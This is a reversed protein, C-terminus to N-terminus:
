AHPTFGDAEEGSGEAKTSRRLLLDFVLGADPLNKRNTQLSGPVSRAYPTGAQGM